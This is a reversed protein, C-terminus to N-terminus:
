SAYFRKSVASSIPFFALLVGAVILSHATKPFGGSVSPMVVLAAQMILLLRIFAGIRPPIPAPPQRFLQATIMATMVMVMLWLTPSPDFFVPLTFNKILIYGVIVAALPLVKAPTPIVSKTELRALNTVAAIFLGIAAAAAYLAIVRLSGTESPPIKEVGGAFAGLLVSLARCAGMNIAGLVPIKKTFFNYLGVSTVIALGIGTTWVSTFFWLLLLGLVILFFTAARAHCFAIAGSPIPRNPREQQDENRDALDNMALGAAYFCLSALVAIFAPGSLWGGTAIIFGALPDGPVTFLNPVRFLQLWARLKPNM